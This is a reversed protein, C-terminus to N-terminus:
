SWLANSYPNAMVWRSEDVQLSYRTVSATTNVSENPMRAFFDRMALSVNDYQSQCGDVISPHVSNAM